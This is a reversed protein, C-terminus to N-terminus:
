SQQLYDKQPVFISFKRSNHVKEAKEHLLDYRQLSTRVHIYRMQRFTQTLRTRMLTCSFLISYVRSVYTGSSCRPTAMPMLIAVPALM